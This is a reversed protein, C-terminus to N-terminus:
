NKEAREALLTEVDAIQGRSLQILAAIQDVSLQDREEATLAPVTMGIVELLVGLMKAGTQDAEQVSAVRHAAAGTMPYVIVERSFLRAKPLRATNVLADLDLTTM